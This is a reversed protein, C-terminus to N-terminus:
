AVSERVCLLLRLRALRWVCTAINELGSSVGDVVSCDTSTVTTFGSSQNTSGTYALTLDGAVGPDTSFGKPVGIELHYRCCRTHLM